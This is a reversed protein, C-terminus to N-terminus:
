PAKRWEPPPAADLATPDAPRFRQSFTLYGALAIASLASALLTARVGVVDAVVGVVLLPLLSLFDGLAMQVAFVRGQAEPRAHENMVVRAAVSVLSFALGLPMALLMSVTIVSSVGVEKEVFSIGLDLNSQVFDRVYVVFGMGVLGMLFLAFGFAVVRWAGLWRSLPPALLLGLAAGMAAPAAVYVTDETSIKLVDETYKPMLIVLVKLLSLSTVLYVISLYAQRDSRLIRFGERMAEVFGFGLKKEEEARTFGSALWGMIYTAWLLLATAVVFVSRADILKLLLPALVVMGAIQGLILTLVMLANAAPLQDRRVLVPVVAAEAPAFFQGVTSFAAALLFISLTSDSYFVLSGVIITRLLYGATLTLRRPLMDAVAGAPIGLFISPLAFSMVLITSQVSSGTENVVLIFLAYLM